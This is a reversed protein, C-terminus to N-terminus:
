DGFSEFMLIEILGFVIVNVLIGEVVCVKVLSKIMVILGVKSVGYVFHVIISGM